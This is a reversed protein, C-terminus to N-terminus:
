TQASDCRKNNCAPFAACSQLGTLYLEWGECCKECRMKCLHPEGCPTVCPMHSPPVLRGVCSGILLMPVFLGSAIASGAAWVAGRCPLCLAPAHMSSTALSVVQPWSIQSHFLERRAVPICSGLHQTCAYKTWDAKGYPPMGARHLKAHLVVKICKFTSDPHVRSLVRASRVRLLVGAHGAARRLRVRPAHRALAPPPHRGRRDREDAHGARQVLAADHRQAGGGADRQRRRGRQM